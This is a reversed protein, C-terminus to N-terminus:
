LNILNTGPTKDTLLIMTLAVSIWCWEMVTTLYYSYTLKEQYDIYRTFIKLAAKFKHLV